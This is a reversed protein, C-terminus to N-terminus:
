ELKKFFFSRPDAGRWIGILLYGFLGIIAFLWSPLNGFLGRVTEFTGWSFLAFFIFGLILVVAQVFLGVGSKKRGRSM